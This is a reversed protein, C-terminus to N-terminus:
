RIKKLNQRYYQIFQEDEETFSIRGHRYPRTKKHYEPENLTYKCVKDVDSKSVSFVSASQQWAFKDRATKNENIVTKQLM